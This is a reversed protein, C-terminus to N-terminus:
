PIATTGVTLCNATASVTTAGVTQNRYYCCHQRAVQDDYVGMLVQNNSATMCSGATVVSGVPCPSSCVTLTSSGNLTQTNTASATIVPDHAHDLQGPKIHTRLIEGTGIQVGSICGECSAALRAAEDAHNASAAVLAYIQATVKQRPFVDSDVTVELWLESALSIKTVLDMDEFTVSFLGNTAQVPMPSAFPGARVSGGVEADYLTASVQVAMSQLKGAGDRLVGQVSFQSPVAALGPATALVIGLLTLTRVLRIV